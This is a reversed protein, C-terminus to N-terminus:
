RQFQFAAFEAQQSAAPKTRFIRSSGSPQSDFVGDEFLSTTRSRQIQGSAFARQDEKRMAALMAAYDQDAVLSVSQAIVAVPKPQQIVAVALQSSVPLTQAVAVPQVPTTTKVAVSQFSNAVNHSFTVKAFVLAVCAAALGTAYYTWHKRRGSQPEFRSVRAPTTLPDAPLAGDESRFSEYVLTTARHMQCYQRYIARRRPNAQMEAELLEMEDGSIQRDIYLNVLEIFHNDNM